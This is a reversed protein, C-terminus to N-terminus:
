IVVWLQYAYAAIASGVLALVIYWLFVPWRVLAFVAMAAPISTVGGAVLFGLAAGPAMGLDILGAALPLAAYGNLYAPVGVLVASDGRIDVVGSVLHFLDEVNSIEYRGSSVFVKGGKGVRGLAYGISRCPSAEDHCRGEDVGNAAVYLPKEQESHALTVSPVALAAILLLRHITLM